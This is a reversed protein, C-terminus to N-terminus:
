QSGGIHLHLARTMFQASWCRVHLYVGFVERWKCQSHYYTLPLIDLQCLTLWTEIGAQLMEHTDVYQLTRICSFGTQPNSYIYIYIFCRYFLLFISVMFGNNKVINLCFHLPPPSILWRFLILLVFITYFHSVWVLLTFNAVLLSGKWYSSCRPTPSPAVGKGPNSWKVRSVYRINSLTLCPPILYWKKKTKPIIHGPISGLDGLGNVFGRGM